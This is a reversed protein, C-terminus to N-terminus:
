IQKARGYGGFVDAGGHMWWLPLDAPHLAIPCKAAAALEGCAAMHDFHGHTILMADLPGTQKEADPCAPNGRTWPDILLVKGKASQIRFTAHGLWTIRIAERM